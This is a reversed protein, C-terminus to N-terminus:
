VLLGKVVFLFDSLYGEHIGTSVPTFTPHPGLFLKNIKPSMILMERLEVDDSVATVVLTSRQQLVHRIDDMTASPLITFFPLPLETNFLPSRYTPCKIATPRLYWKGNHAQLRSQQRNTIEEDEPALGEDLFSNLLKAENESRMAPIVADWNSNDVVKIQNLRHALANCFAEDHRMTIVISANTCKRGGAHTASKVVLDVHEETLPTRRNDLILKSVGTGFVKIRDSHQFRAFQDSSGYVAALDCHEVISDVIESKSPLFQVLEPPLGAELLAAVLRLPVLPEGNSPRVVVSFGMALSLIWNFSIRVSNSPLVWGVNGARPVYAVKAGGELSCIADFFSSKKHYRSQKELHEEINVMGMKLGTLDESITRIPLGTSSTLSEVLSAYNLGQLDREAFLSAAACIHKVISHLDPRKGIRRTSRVAKLVHLSTAQALTGITAGRCDRLPETDVSMHSRGDVIMPVDM